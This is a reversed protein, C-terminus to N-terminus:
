TFPNGKSACISGIRKAAEMMIKRHVRWASVVESHGEITITLIHVRRAVRYCKRNILPYLWRIANKPWVIIEM